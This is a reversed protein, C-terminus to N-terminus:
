RRRLIKLVRTVFQERGLAKALYGDAKSTEAIRALEIPTRDSHLYVACDPLATKIRRVLAGIDVGKFSLDLLVLQVPTVALTGVLSDPSEFLLVEIGYPQLSFRVLERIIESDDVALIKKAM